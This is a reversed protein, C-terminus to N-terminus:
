RPEVKTLRKEYRVAAPLRAELLQRTVRDSEVLEVLTVLLNQDIVTMLEVFAAMSPSGAGAELAVVTKRSIGARGALDAQTLGRAKRMVRLGRGLAALAQQAAPSASARPKPGAPPRHARLLALADEITKM